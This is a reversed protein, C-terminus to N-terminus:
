TRLKKLKAEQLIRFFDILHISNAYMWNDLVKKNHGNKKAKILDEQDNIVILRKIKKKNIIKKLNM